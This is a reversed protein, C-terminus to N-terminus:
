EKDKTTAAKAPTKPAAAKPNAEPLSKLADLHRVLRSVPEKSVQKRLIKEIRAPLSPSEEVGERPEMATLLAEMAKKQWLDLLNGTIQLERCIEAPRRRETWLSLVARTKVEASFTRRTRKRATKTPTTTTAM